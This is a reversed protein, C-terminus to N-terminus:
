QSISTGIVAELQAIAAVYNSQEQRQMSELDRLAAAASIWDALSAKGSEYAIETAKLRDRAQTLLPGSVQHTHHGATEIDELTNRLLGLAQDRAAQAAHEAAAVNSAAERTASRYKTSNAWPINFSIGADLESIAQSSNYRQGEVSLTPDPIWARHALELKAKEAALKHETALIEPRNALMMTRLHEPSIVVTKPQANDIGGIQAFADRGMLVNLNSQAAVETRRLDQASDLLKGAEIQAALVDPAGSGGTEYRARAAGTMQQLLTIDQQNLELQAQANALQYFAAKTQAAVDLSTRRADEYAVMAEDM